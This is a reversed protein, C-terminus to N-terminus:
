YFYAFNISGRTELLDLFAVFM